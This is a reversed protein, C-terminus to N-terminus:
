RQRDRVERGRTQSLEWNASRLERALALRQSDPQPMSRVFAEVKAGLARDTADDSRRLLLAQAHYLGRVTAQRDLMRAEWPRPATDGRFAAKAVERYAARRVGASEGRGAEYRERIRRLATVESKRTVGRARRPTAEAAVGRDRLALAFGERWAALDAKRPNLREGGYGLACLTLHVHPHGRDTHLVFVYDFRDAFTHQAFARAADRLQLPDTDKPMSLVLSLSFPTTSRRRSDALAMAAWDGALEVVDEQGALRWGDRDEAELDGNRTIYRLHASLHGTDRTRGTVKVMVEPARAVIRKLKARVQIARAAATLVTEPRTRRSRVPPRWVEEFGRVIPFDSM